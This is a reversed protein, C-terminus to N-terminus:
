KKIFEYFVTNELRKKFRKQKELKLGCIHPNKCM